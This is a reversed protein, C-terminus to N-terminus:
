QLSQFLEKARKLGFRTRWSKTRAIEKARLDKNFLADDFVKVTRLWNFKDVLFEGAGLIESVATAHHAFVPLDFYMSEVIPVGFGEHESLSAYLDASKYLTTLQSDRVSGLTLVDAAFNWDSALTLGLAHAFNHIIDKYSASFYGGAFILRVKRSSIKKHLSLLQLLDHHCKNPSVRGIFIVTAVSKDALKSALDQDVPSQTLAEYDRFVPIVHVPQESFSSLESANYSSDALLVDSAKSVDPLQIRGLGCMYRAHLEDSRTFFQMPTINHYRLWRQCSLTPWLKSLETGVSFHFIVATDSRAKGHAAIDTMLKKSPLALGNQYGDLCYIESQHGLSRLFDRMLSAETGIADRPSFNPLIQHITKPM